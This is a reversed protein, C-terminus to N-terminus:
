LLELAAPRDAEPIEPAKEKPELTRKIEAEQMAFSCCCRVSTRKVLRPELAIAPAAQEFPGRQRASYLELTDVYFGHSERSFQVSV